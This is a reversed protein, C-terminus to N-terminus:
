GVCLHKKKTQKQALIILFLFLYELGYQPSDKKPMYKTIDDKAAQRQQQQAKRFLDVDMSRHVAQNLQQKWSGNGSGYNRNQQSLRKPPRGPKRYGPDYIGYAEKLPTPPRGGRGGRSLRPRGRGRVRGWMPRNPPRGLRGRGRGGRQGTAYPHPVPTQSHSLSQSHSQSQSQSQSYSAAMWDGRHPPRGRMPRRGMRGMGMGMGRRGRMGRRSPPMGRMSRTARTARTPRTTRTPPPHFRQPHRSPPPPGRRSVPPPPGRSPRQSYPNSAAYPNNTSSSYPNSNSYPNGGHPPPPRGIPPPPRGSQSSSSSPPMMPPPRQGPAPPPPGRSPPAGYQYAYRNQSPPARSPNNNYSYRSPQSM